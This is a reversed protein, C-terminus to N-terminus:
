VQQNLPSPQVSCINRSAIQDRRQDAKARETENLAIIRVIPPANWETKSNLLTGRFNTIRVMENIQRSMPDKYSKEVRIEFNNLRRSEVEDATEHNNKWHKYFANNESKNKLGQMHQKSRTYANKGTEGLYESTKNQKSCEKCIIRYGVGEARCKVGKGDCVICDFKKCTQEKFSNSKQFLKELSVGTQEIFQFNM